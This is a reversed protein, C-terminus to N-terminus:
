DPFESLRRITYRVDIKKLVARLCVWVLLSGVLLLDFAFNPVDEDRANDPMVPVFEARAYNSVSISRTIQSVSFAKLAETLKVNRGQVITRYSDSRQLQEAARCITQQRTVLNTIARYRSETAIM